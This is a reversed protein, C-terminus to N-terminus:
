QIVWRKHYSTLIECGQSTVLVDDEIRVGGLGPYYLGPEATIVMGRKFRSRNRPTIGPPEHIDLGFGHGTSHIFGRLQDGKTKTIYGKKEFYEAATNHATSMCVRPKIASIAKEQAERVTNYLKHLEFSPKGKIFTRTIDAYYFTANSRPFIDFIIPEHARLKGTGKCHPDCAQNGGAVILGPCAANNRAFVTHIESKLTESTLIRKNYMIYGRANISSNRLIDEGQKMAKQAILISQQIHEIEPGNKIMREPFFPPKQVSLKIRRKKLFDAYILPFDFPVQFSRTKFNDRLFSLFIGALSRPKYEVRIDATNVTEDAASEKKARKYELPSALLFTRGKIRAFIFPDPASFGSAYLMNSNSESDAIM